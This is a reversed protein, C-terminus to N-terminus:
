LKSRDMQKFIFDVLFGSYMNTLILVACESKSKVADLLWKTELSLNFTWKFTVKSLEISFASTLWRFATFKSPFDYSFHTNDYM